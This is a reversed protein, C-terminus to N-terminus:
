ERGLFFCIERLKENMVSAAFSNEHKYTTSTKKEKRELKRFVIFYFLNREILIFDLELRMQTLSLNNLTKKQARKRSKHRAKFKEKENKEYKALCCFFTEWYAKMRRQQKHIPNRREQPKKTTGFLKWFNKKGL